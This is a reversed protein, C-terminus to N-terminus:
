VAGEPLPTSKANVGGVPAILAANGSDLWKKQETSTAGTAASTLPFRGKTPTNVASVGVQAAMFAAIASDPSM